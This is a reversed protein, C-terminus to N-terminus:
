LLIDLVPLLLLGGGGGGGVDDYGVVPVNSGLPSSNELSLSRM